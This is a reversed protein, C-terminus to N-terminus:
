APRAIESRSELFKYVKRTTLLQEIKELADNKRLSAKAKSSSEGSREALEEVYADVDEQRARLGHEDAIRDLVLRRKVVFEADPRIRQKLDNRVEPALDDADGIMADACANVLSESVEFENAEVVLKVLEAHAAADAQREAAAEYEEVLRAKWEELTDFGGESKAFADDLPPREPVRRELLRVRLDRRTGRVVEDPHDKPFEVTISGEAGPVLASVAEEIAPLAQNRGLVFDYQKPSGDERAEGDDGVVDLRAITVTVADGTRPTGDAPTWNAKETRREEFFRELYDDAPQPAPRVIRFGGLRRLEVAPEVDFSVEFSMGGGADSRVKDIEAGSVPKLGHSAVADRFAGEALRDVTRRELERGFRKEIVQLSAKGSRFGKLKVRSALRRAVGSRERAVMGAPVRVALTRRCQKGETVTVDFRAESL